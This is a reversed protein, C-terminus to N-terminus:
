VRIPLAKLDRLGGAIFQRADGIKDTRTAERAGIVSELVKGLNGLLPRNDGSLGAVASRTNLVAVEARELWVEAAFHRNELLDRDAHELDAIAGTHHAAARQRQRQHEAHREEARAPRNETLSLLGALGLGLLAARRPAAARAPSSTMPETM